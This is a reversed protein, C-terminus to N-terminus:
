GITPEGSHHHFCSLCLKCESMSYFLPRPTHYPTHRPPVHATTTVVHLASMGATERTILTDQGLTGSDETYHQPTSLTLRPRHWAHTYHARGTTSGQSGGYALVCQLPGGTSLTRSTGVKHHDLKHKIWSQSPAFAM